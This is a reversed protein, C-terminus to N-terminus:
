MYPLLFSVLLWLIFGVSKGRKSYRCDCILYCFVSWSGCYLDSRNEESLIVVIVYLTVFFQGLAM